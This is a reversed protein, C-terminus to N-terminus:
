YLMTSIKDQGISSWVQSTLFYINYIYLSCKSICIFYILAYIMHVVLNM